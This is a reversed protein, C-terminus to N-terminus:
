KNSEVQSILWLLDIKEKPSLEWAKQKQLLKDLETTWESKQNGESKPTSTFDPKKTTTVLTKYLKVKKELDLNEAIDTYESLISEPITTLLTDLETQLTENKETVIQDYLDAKKKLEAIEKDKQDIIEKAQGKEIKEKQEKKEKDSRFWALEENLKNIDELLKKKAERELKLAINVDWKKEQTNTNTETGQDKNTNLDIDQAGEWNDVPDTIWSTGPLIDTPTNLSNEPM